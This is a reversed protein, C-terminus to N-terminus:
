KISIGKVQEGFHDLMTVFEKPSMEHRLAFGKAWREIDNLISRAEEQNHKGCGPFGLPEPAPAGKGKKAPAKKKPATKKKKNGTLAM